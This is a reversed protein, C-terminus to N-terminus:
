NQGFLVRKENLYRDVRNYIIESIDEKNIDASIVIFNNDKAIHKFFSNLNIYYEEKVSRDFSQSMRSSLLAISGDIYFTLDAKPILKLFLEANERFLDYLFQIFYRDCIVIKNRGIFLKLYICTSFVYVTGFFLLFAKKLSYSLGNNNSKGVSSTSLRRPSISLYNEFKNRSLRSLSDVLLYIPRICVARQGNAKLRDALLHCQTTKGSGDIGVIAIIVM